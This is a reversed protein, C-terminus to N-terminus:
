RRNNIPPETSYKIFQRQRWQKFIIMQFMIILQSDIQKNLEDLEMQSNAQKMQMLTKM